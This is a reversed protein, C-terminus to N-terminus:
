PCTYLACCSCPCSGAQILMLQRTEGAPGVALQAWYDLEDTAVLASLHAREGDFAGAAGQAAAAAPADGVGALTAGRLGAVVQLLLEQLHPPLAAAAPSQQQQSQGPGLGLMPCYLESLLRYLSRPHTTATPGPHRQLLVAEIPQQTELNHSGVRM